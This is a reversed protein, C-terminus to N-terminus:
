KEVEASALSDVFHVGMDEYLHGYGELKGNHIAGSAFMIALYQLHDDITEFPMMTKRFDEMFEDTFKEPNYHVEVSMEINVNKFLDTEKVPM